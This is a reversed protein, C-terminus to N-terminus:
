PYLRQRDWGGQPAARFFRIRDHLRFKGHSWFEISLPRIRYGIWHPPRPVSSLAFKAAYKTVAAELALRSELPRSQQSAWAGIRSQLPRTAFYADAEADSVREVPGRIRVQRHSSKWYFVAAAQMNAALERGKDSDSNSYFVFGNADFAKLLVMRVDPVGGADTTALAMANADEPESKEAGALWESFLALPEDADTFDNVTLEDPM